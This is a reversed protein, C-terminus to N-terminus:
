SIDVLTYHKGKKWINWLNEFPKPLLSLIANVTEEGSVKSIGNLSFKDIEKCSRAHQILAEFLEGPYNIIEDKMMADLKFIICNSFGTKPNLVIIEAGGSYRWSTETEMEDVFKAFLIESFALPIKTGREYKGIGIDKMDPVIDKNWYGGYGACYFHIDQGTREDLYGIRSIIGDFGLQSFKPAFLICCIANPHAKIHEKVAQLTPAELM